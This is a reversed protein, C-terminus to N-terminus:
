YVKSFGSYQDKDPDMSLGFKDVGTFKFEIHGPDITGDSSDNQQITFQLKATMTDEDWYVNDPFSRISIETSAVPLGFNYVEGPGAGAARSIKWNFRNEVSARDMEKEFADKEKKDDM